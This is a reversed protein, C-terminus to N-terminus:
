SYRENESKARTDTTLPHNIRFRGEQVTRHRNIEGYCSLWDWLMSITREKSRYQPQFRYLM